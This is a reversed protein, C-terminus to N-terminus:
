LSRVRYFRMPSGDMTETYNGSLKGTDTWPGDVSNATQLEGGHFLVTIVGDQISTSIVLPGVAGGVFVPQIAAGSFASVIGGRSTNPAVSVTAAQSLSLACLTGTPGPIAAFVTPDWFAGLELTVGGSNLGPLTGAPDDAPNALPTYDSSGWDINTGSGVVVHDRFSAPFVGYGTATATGPGRFFGSIGTIRGRDVSVDLAFAQVVEGATCEYHIWAVGNSDQVSVVVEGQAPVPVILDLSFIILLIAFASKFHFVRVCRSMPVWHGGRRPCAFEM